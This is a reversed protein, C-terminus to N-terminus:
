NFGAGVLDEVDLTGQIVITIGAGKDDSDGGFTIIPKDPKCDTYRKYVRMANGTKDVGDWSWEFVFGTPLGSDYPRTSFGAPPTATYAVTISQDTTTFPAGTAFTLKTYNDGFAAATTNASVDGDVSGVVTTPAIVAADKYKLIVSGDAAYGWEGSEFVDSTVIPTLGDFSYTEGMGKNLIALVEPRIERLTLTINELKGNKVIKDKYNHFDRDVTEGGAEFSPDDLVGLEIRSAGITSLVWARGGGQLMTSQNVPKTASM